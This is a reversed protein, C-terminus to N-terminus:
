TEGFNPSEESMDYLENVTDVYLGPLIMQEGEFRIPQQNQNISSMLGPIDGSASYAPGLSSQGGFLGSEQQLRKFFPKPELSRRWDPVWSPWLDLHSLSSQIKSLMDSLNQGTLDIPSEEIVDSSSTEPLPGDDISGNATVDRDNTAFLLDSNTTESVFSATWNCYGLIDLLHNYPGSTLYYKVLEIYVERTSRTYDPQPFGPNSIDAAIGLLGYVKDREDTAQFDRFSNLLDLLLLQDIGEM